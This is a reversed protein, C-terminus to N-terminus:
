AERSQTRIWQTIRTALDALHKRGFVRIRGEPDVDRRMDHELGDPDNSCCVLAIRAEDGGLQRARVYAEFLKFKLMGKKSDTSCSAAFLQYGRLAVVDVDFQVEKTEINQLCQHLKLDPAIRTMVALLYHELWKGDLWGCFHKANNGFAAQQLAVDGTSQGLESRLTQVVQQLSSHPPLSLSLTCLADESKWNNQKDRCKKRLEEQVWQQWQQFAKDETCMIALARASEPLLPQTTPEHLLTWRHLRLLDTLQLPLALAIDVSQKHGGSAPDPPDLVMKLTRADLYSFVADIQKSKRQQERVWHEMARYAHVSMAKTGGTYHLGVRQKNVEQLEELVGQAIEVPDSEGVKKPRVKERPFGYDGLWGQLSQAVSFSDKSCLLTITGNATALLKGAVANPLPNSGVLLFLHESQPLSMSTGM